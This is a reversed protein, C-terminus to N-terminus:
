RSIGEQTGHSGQPDWPATGWAPIRLLKGPSGPPALFPTGSLTRTGPWCGQMSFYGPLWHHQDAILSAIFCQLLLHAQVMVLWVYLCCFSRQVGGERYFPNSM